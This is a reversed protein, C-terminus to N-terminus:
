GGLSMAGEQITSGDVLGMNQISTMNTTSTIDNSNSNCTSYHIPQCHSAIASGAIAQVASFRMSAETAAVFSSLYNVFSDPQEILEEPVFDLIYKDFSGQYNYPQAM